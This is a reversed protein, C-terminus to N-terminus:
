RDTKTPTKVIKPHSTYMHINAKLYTYIYISYINLIEYIYIYIINFTEHKTNFISYEIHLILLKTNSKYYLCIHVLACIYELTCIQTIDMKNNGKVM